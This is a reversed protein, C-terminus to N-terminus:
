KRRRLRNSAVTTPRAAAAHLPSPSFYSFRWPPTIDFGGELFDVTRKKSSMIPPIIRPVTSKDENTHDKLLNLTSGAQSSTTISSAYPRAHTPDGWESGTPSVARMYGGAKRVKKGHDPGTKSQNSTVSSQSGRRSLQRGFHREEMKSSESLDTRGNMDGSVASGGNQGQGGALANALGMGVEDTLQTRSGKNGSGQKSTTGKSEGQSTTKLLNSSSGRDKRRRGRRRRKTLSNNSGSGELLGSSDSNLGDKKSHTADTEASSFSKSCTGNTDSANKESSSLHTTGNQNVSTELHQNESGDGGEYRSSSTKSQLGDNDANDMKSGEKEQDDLKFTIRRKNKKNKESKERGLEWPDQGGNERILRALEEDCPFPTIGYWHDRCRPCHFKTGVGGANWDRKQGQIYHIIAKVHSM